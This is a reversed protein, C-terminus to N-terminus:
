QKSPNTIIQFYKQSKISNNLYNSITKILGGFDKLLSGFIAELYLEKISSMELKFSHVNLHNCLVQIIWFCSKLLKDFVYSNYSWFHQCLSFHSHRDTLSWFWHLFKSSIELALFLRFWAHESIEFKSFFLIDTVCLQCGNRHFIPSSLEISDDKFNSPLCRQM